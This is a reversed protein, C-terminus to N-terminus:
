GRVQSAGAEIGLAAEVDHVRHAYTHEGRVRHLAARGIAEAAESTLSALHDAVHGGDAAVLVERGPELFMDIGEWADTIICAGAGAAEFIRTAPSYGFRAMSARNVSLVAMPSSNFANHEATGVHGVCTANAPAPKGDWGSGGLLFRKDPL